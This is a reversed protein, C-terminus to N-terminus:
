SQLEHIRTIVGDKDVCVVVAETPRQGLVRRVWGLAGEPYQYELARVNARDVGCVDSEKGFVVDRRVTPEGVQRVLEGESRGTGFSAVRVHLEASRSCGALLAGLSACVYIVAKADHRRWLTATPKGNSSPRLAMNM